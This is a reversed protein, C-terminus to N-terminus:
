DGWRVCGEVNPISPWIPFTHPMREIGRNWDLVAFCPSPLAGPVVKHAHRTLGQWASTVLFLKNRGEWKGFVHRHARYVIDPPRLGADVYSMQENHFEISM